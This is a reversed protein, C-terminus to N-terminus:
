QTVKPGIPHKRILEVAHKIDYGVVIGTNTSVMQDTDEFRVRQGRETRIRWAEVQSLDENPKLKVPNLVPTLEPQYGSVVGAVKFIWVDNHDLDRYVIPGGSFGPNNHGDLYIALEGSPDKAQASIIGKKLFPFPYFKSLNQAETFYVGYPFGAFYVDQAFRIGAMTPDLPFTNTLQEPPVLVAIDVSGDCRFVDMKIPVWAGEKWIHITDNAKLAAVVHKATVLYQRGDVDITFASGIKDGARIMLVRMLVNFTMQAGARPPNAAFLFTLTVFVFVM